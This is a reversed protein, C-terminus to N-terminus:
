EKEEFSDCTDSFYTPTGYEESEENGCMPKM